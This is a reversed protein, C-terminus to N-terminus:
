IDGAALRRIGESPDVLVDPPYIGHIRNTVIDVGAADRLATAWRLTRGDAITELVTGKRVVVGQGVGLYPESLDLAKARDDTVTVEDLVLDAEPEEGALM